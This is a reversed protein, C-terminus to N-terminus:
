PIPRDIMALFRSDHLAIGAVTPIGRLSETLKRVEAGADGGAYTLVTGADDQGPDAINVGLWVLTGNAAAQSITPQAATLVDEARARYAMVTIADCRRLVEQLLTSSESHKMSAFQMPVDVDLPLGVEGALDLATLFGRALAHQDGSPLGVFNPEIDLHLRAALGLSKM